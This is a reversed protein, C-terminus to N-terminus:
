AGHRGLWRRTAGVGAQVRAAHAAPAGHIRAHPAHPLDDLQPPARRFREVAGRSGRPPPTRDVSGGRAANTAHGELRAVDYLHRPLYRPDEDHQRLVHHCLHRLLEPRPPVRLGGGRLESTALTEAARGSPLRVHLEIASGAASLLRDPHHHGARRHLGDPRFGARLLLQAAREADAAPVLLDVDDLHRLSPDVLGEVLLAAGKLAVARIRAHDLIEAALHADRMLMQNAAATRALAAVLADRIQTAELPLLAHALLPTVAYRDTIALLQAQDIGDLDTSTLARGRGGAHLVSALCIARERWGSTAPIRPVNALLRAAQALDDRERSENM